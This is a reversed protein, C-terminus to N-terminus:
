GPRPMMALGCSRDVGLLDVNLRTERRDRGLEADDDAVDLNPAAVLRTDARPNMFTLPPVAAARARRGRIVLAGRRDENEARDTRGLVVRCPQDQRSGVDRRHVQDQDFEGSADRRAVM